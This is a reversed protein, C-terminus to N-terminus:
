RRNKERMKEMTYPTQGYYPMIGGVTLISEVAALLTKYVKKNGQLCAVLNDMQGVTMQDKLKSATASSVKLTKSIKYLSYGEQLLVVVALRKALMIREEGGLLDSLFLDTDKTSLKSIITNLQNFIKDLQINSLQVKNLRVM